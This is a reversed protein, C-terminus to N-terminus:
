QLCGWPPLAYLRRVADAHRTAIRRRRLKGTETLEDSGPLWPEALVTHAVIRERSDLVANVRGIAAAVAAHTDGGPEVGPALTVLATNHPRGDGVVCVQGILPCEGKVAAEIPAPATNHGSASIIIERKRDVLRLRGHEDIEGVDGTRTWGDTGFVAATEEPLNRYGRARPGRVLVEGDVATRVEVGTLPVGVTGLDDPGPRTQVAAAIETMGYFEGFPLGLAHIFRQLALPCPAAATVARDLRDLGLRERLGALADGDAPEARLTAELVAREDTTARALALSRVAQWLQPSGFLFTPRADLLAAPLQATDPCATRTAGVLHGRWHGLGREGAHGFPGVSLDSVDPGEPWAATFADLAQLMRGHQWEVGKPAGTTGSTYLIGLLDDPTVERSRRELDFGAPADVEALPPGLRLPGDLGIVHRVEHQVGSLREELGQEVLLATPACDALVHQLVPAPSTTYLAVGAAGLQVTATEALLLEPLNRALFAVRDGRQVGLAALSGAARDVAAGYEEWTWTRAGGLSRLALQPGRDRVNRAFAHCLTSPRDAGDPETVPEAAITTM